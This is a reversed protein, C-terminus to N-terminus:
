ANSTFGSLIVLWFFSVVAMFSIRFHGPVVGFTFCQVPAWLSWSKFLLGRKMVDTKYRQLGGLIGGQQLVVAKVLYAMPLCLFPIIVLMDFCVKAVVSFVTGEGFLRPLFSNYLYEQTMGTYVGGYIIFALNRLKQFNNNGCNKRDKVQAVADAVSGKVCCTFFAAMYPFSKYFNAVGNIPITGTGAVKLPGQRYVAIKKHDCPTKYDVRPQQFLRSPTSACPSFSIALKTYCFLALAVVRFTRKTIGMTLKNSSVQKNVLTACQM